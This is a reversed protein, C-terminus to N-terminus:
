KDSRTPKEPSRKPKPNTIRKLTEDFVVEDESCEAERAAEIFRKAQDANARTATKLKKAKQPRISTKTRSTQM